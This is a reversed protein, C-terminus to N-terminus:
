KPCQCLALCTHVINTNLANRLSCLWIIKKKRSPMFTWRSILPFSECHLHPSCISRLKRNRAVTYIAVPNKNIIQAFKLSKILASMKWSTYKETRSGIFTQWFTDFHSFHIIHTRDTHVLSHIREIYKWISDCYGYKFTKTRAGGTSLQTWWDISLHCRRWFRSIRVFEVSSTEYIEYLFWKLVVNKFKIWCQGNSGVEGERFVLCFGVCIRHQFM